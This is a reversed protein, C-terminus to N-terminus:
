KKLLDFIKGVVKDNVLILTHSDQDIKVENMLELGERKLKKKLLIMKKNRDYYEKNTQKNAM